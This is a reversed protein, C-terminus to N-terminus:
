NSFQLEHVKGALDYDRALLDLQLSPQLEVLLFVFVGAIDTQPHGSVFPSNLGSEYRAREVIPVHNGDGDIEFSDSPHCCQM